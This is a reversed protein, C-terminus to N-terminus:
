MAFPKSLVSSTIALSSPRQSPVALRVLEWHIALLDSPTQTFRGAAVGTLLQGVVRALLASGSPGFGERDRHMSTRAQGALIGCRLAVSAVRVRAVLSPGDSAILEDERFHVDDLQLTAIDAAGAGPGRIANIRRIRDQESSILAIAYPRSDAFAVPIGAVYWAPGVNPMAALRGSLRWGRPTHRGTV